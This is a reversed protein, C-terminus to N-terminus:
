SEPFTQPHIPGPRSKWVAKFFAPITWGVSIQPIVIGDPRVTWAMTPITDIILPAIKAAVCANREAQARREGSAAGRKPENQTRFRKMCSMAHTGSRSQKVTNRGDAVRCFVSRNCIFTDPLTRSDCALSHSPPLVYAFALISLLIALLGPRIGGSGTSLHRRLSYRYM